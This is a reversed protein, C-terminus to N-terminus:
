TLAATAPFHVGKRPLTLLVPQPQTALSPTRHTEMVCPLTIHQPTPHAPSQQLLLLPQFPWSPHLPQSSLGSRNLSTIPFSHVEFPFSCLAKFCGCGWSAKRQAGLDWLWACPLVRM